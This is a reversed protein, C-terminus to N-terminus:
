PIEVLIERGDRGKRGNRYISKGKRRTAWGKARNQRLTPYDTGAGRSKIHKLRPVIGM